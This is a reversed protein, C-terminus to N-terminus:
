MFKRKHQSDMYKRKHNHKM